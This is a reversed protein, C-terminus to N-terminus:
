EQQVTKASHLDRQFAKGFVRREEHRDREGFVDGDFEVFEDEVKQRQGLLLLSEYGLLAKVPVADENVLALESIAREYAAAPGPNAPLLPEARNRQAGM